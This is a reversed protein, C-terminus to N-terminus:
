DKPIKLVQGPRILNPNDGIVGKNAEYVKMWKEKAASGYHELAIHSLTEGKKVTHEAIVQSKMTQARREELIRKAKDQKSEQDASMKEQGEDLPSM